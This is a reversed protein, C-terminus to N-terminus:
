KVTVEKLKLKLEKALSNIFKGSNEFITSFFYPRPRVGYTRIFLGTRPNLYTWPISKAKSGKEAYIGTGKEHYIGYKSKDKIIVSFRERGIEGVEASISKEWLEGTDYIDLAKIKNMIKKVFVTYAQQKFIEKIESSELLNKIRNLNALVKKADISISINSKAM